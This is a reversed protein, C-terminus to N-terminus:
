DSHSYDLYPKSIRAIKDDPDKEFGYENKVPLFEVDVHVYPSGKLGYTQQTRTSIGGETAFVRFLDKRTMGPKVDNTWRLISGVWKTHEWDVLPTGELTVIELPKGTTSNHQIEIRTNEIETTSERGYNTEKLHDLLLMAATPRRDNNTEILQPAGFALNLILLIQRAREPSNMDGLSVTRMVALAAMDGARNLIKEDWGTYGPNSLLRSVAGKINQFSSFESQSCDQAFATFSVLILTIPLLYRKM